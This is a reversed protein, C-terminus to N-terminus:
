QPERKLGLIELGSNIMRDEYDKKTENTKEEQRMLRLMEVAIKVGSEGKLKDASIKVSGISEAFLKQEITSVDEAIVKIGAYEKSTLGFRNISLYIAGKEVLLDRLQASSIDSTKGASLEGKIKLIVLKGRVNGEELKELLQRQAQVSDKNSADYEIYAFNCVPTEHFDVREIKEDFSVVYFGRKEGKASAELDRPYGAFLPGPYVIAGYGELKKAASQHIHGGAYYDFNKPLLSLPISDMGSLLEPKLETIASHFVFIKFGKENELKDRDLIEYYDKELGRKRASIGALKAGTSPDVVFELELKDEQMKGRVIKSILGASDLVDVMSTENPSYDHSGYIAYIPIGEDKVQRMKKVAENTVAMDPINAHFLDGSVVVFNVKEEICKDLAIKFAALELNQLVLERNAGLHCDALHAFKYMKDGQSCWEEKRRDKQARLTTKM